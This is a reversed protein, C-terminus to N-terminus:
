SRPSRSSSPGTGPTTPTPSGPRTSCRRTTTSPSSTSTAPCGTSATRRPSTPWRRTPWSASTTATGTSTRSSTSCCTAARTTPSSRATWRSCTPLPAAPSGPRSSTGTPTGTPCPRRQGHHEPQRRPVRRRHGAPEQDGAPRGLDLLRDHGAPRHLRRGVPGGVGREVPRASPPSPQDTRRVPRELRRGAAPAAIVALPWSPWATPEDPGTASGGADSAAPRDHTM